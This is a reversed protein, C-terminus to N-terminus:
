VPCTELLTRVGALDTANYRAQIAEISGMLQCWQVIVDDSGMYFVLVAQLPPHVVNSYILAIARIVTIHCESVDLIIPILADTDGPLVESVLVAMAKAFIYHVIDMHVCILTVGILVGIAWCCQMMAAEVVMPGFKEVGAAVTGWADEWTSHAGAILRRTEDMQLDTTHPLRHPAILKELKLPPLIANTVPNRRSTRIWKILSEADYVTPVADGSFVVPHELEDLEIFSIPCRMETIIQLPRGWL